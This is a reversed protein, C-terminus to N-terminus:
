TSSAGLSSVSIRSSRDAGISLWSSSRRCTTFCARRTATARRAHPQNQGPFFPSKMMGAVNGDHYSYTSIRGESARFGNYHGGIQLIVNDEAFDEARLCKRIEGTLARYYAPDLNFRQWWLTRNHHFTKMM